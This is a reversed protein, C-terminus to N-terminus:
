KRPKNLFSAEAFIMTLGILLFLISIPLGMITVIISVPNEKQFSSLAKRIGGVSLYVLVIGGFM